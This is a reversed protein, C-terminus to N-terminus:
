TYLDVLVAVDGGGSHSGVCPQRGLQSVYSFPTEPSGSNRSELRLSSLIDRLKTDGSVGM